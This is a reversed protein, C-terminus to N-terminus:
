LRAHRNRRRAEHHTGAAASNDRDGGFPNSKLDLGDEGLYRGLGASRCSRSSATRSTDTSWHVDQDLCTASVERASMLM